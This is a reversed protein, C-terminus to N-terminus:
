ACTPDGWDLLGRAIAKLNHRRQRVKHSEKFEQRYASATRPSLQVRRPPGLSMYIVYNKMRRPLKDARFDMRRTPM